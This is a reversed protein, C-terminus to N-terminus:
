HMPIWHPPFFDAHVIKSGLMSGPLPWKDYYVTVGGALFAAWWSFTGVSMIVHDCSAMIALDLAETNNPYMYELQTNSNVPARINQEAWTMDNSTVVFLLHEDAFNKAFYTMANVYYEVPPTVFGHRVRREDLVDGRRVHIAVLIPHRKSRKYYLARLERTIEEAPTRIESKFVFMSRIQDTINWFYKWSQFFGKISVNSQVFRAEFVAPNYKGIAREGIVHPKRRQTEGYHTPINLNFYANMKSDGWFALKKDSGAVIGMM